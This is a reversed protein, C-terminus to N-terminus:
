ALRVRASAGGLVSKGEFAATVNVKFTGDDLVKTVKATVEVLAGLDDDPVPVPRGFRVGYELVAGPDGTWETVIRAAMGMTLMGHAIVGPLGVGVAFRESWHIPNLDGSAGAYRVLDARTIRLTLPPLSDGVAIDAARVGM